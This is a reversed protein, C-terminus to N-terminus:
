EPRYILLRGRRRRHTGDATATAPSCSRAASIGATGDRPRVCRPSATSSDVRGRDRDLRAAPRRLRAPPRRRDHGVTAVGGARDSWTTSADLDPRRVRRDRRRRPGLVRTSGARESTSASASTSTAPDVVEPRRRQRPHPLGPVHHARTRARRRAPPPRATAADRGRGRRVSGSTGPKGDIDLNVWLDTPPAHLLDRVADDHRRRPREFEAAPSAPSPSPRGLLRSVPTSTAFVRQRQHHGAGARGTAEYVRSAPGPTTPPATSARGRVTPAATARGPRCRSRSTAASGPSRSATPSLADRSGSGLGTAVLSSWRTRRPPADCTSVTTRDLDDPARTLAYPFGAVEVDSPCTSASVVRGAPQSRRRASAARRGVAAVGAVLVVAAASPWPRPGVAAYPASGRDHVAVPASTASPTTSATPPAPRPDLAPRRLTNMLPGGDTETALAPDIRLKALAKSTQSKVTGTSVGLLRATEAESLDEVFRLVIVARQRRPLRGMATWLDHREDAAAHGGPGPDPEPLDGHAQEGNWKRRWWSAFTNVLIKRVYPEPDDDIRSWSFWAKALATQLLDEALAHDRTLLYATRLLRSSRAAVFEDFEAAATM